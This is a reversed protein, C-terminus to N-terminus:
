RICPTVMMRCYTRIMVYTDAFVLPIRDPATSLTLLSTCRGIKAHRMGDDEDTM